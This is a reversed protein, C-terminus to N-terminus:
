LLFNELTTCFYQARTEITGVLLTKRCLHWSCINCCFNQTAGSAVVAAAAAALVAASAAAAALVAAAAVEFKAANTAFHRPFFDKIAERSSLRREWNAVFM